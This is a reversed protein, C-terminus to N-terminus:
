VEDDEGTYPLDNFQFGERDVFHYRRPKLMILGDQFKKPTNDQLNYPSIYNNYLDNMNRKVVEVDFAPNYGEYPHSKNYVDRFADGIDMSAESTSVVELVDILDESLTASGRKDYNIGCLRGVAKGYRDIISDKYELVERYGDNASQLSSIKRQLERCEEISIEYNHEITEIKRKLQENEAKLEDYRKAKDLINIMYEGVRRDNEGM